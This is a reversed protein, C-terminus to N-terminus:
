SVKNIQKQLRKKTRISKAQINKGKIQFKIVSHIKSMDKENFLYISEQEGEVYLELTVGLEKLQPIINNVTQSSQFLIALKDKSFRYVQTKYKGLLYNDEQNPSLEGNSLLTPFV